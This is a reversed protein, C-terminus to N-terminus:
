KKFKHVKYNKNEIKLTLDTFLDLDKFESYKKQLENGFGPTTLEEEQNPNERM